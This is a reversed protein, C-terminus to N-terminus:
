LVLARIDDSLEYESLTEGTLQDIWDAMEQEWEWLVMEGFRKFAPTGALDELEEEGSVAQDLQDVRFGYPRITHRRRLAQFIVDLAAPPMIGRKGGAGKTTLKTMYKFLEIVQGPRMRQVDQAAISADPYQRLWRDRLRLAQEKGQVGVHFHPNYDDRRPNYTCELKRVARLDLKDVRRIQEICNRTLRRQMDGIHNRLRGAEVNPTTLTVFHPDSWGEIVPVYANIYKATRIRNCVLCWRNSCYHTRLRDDEQVIDTSCYITNRYSKALPSKLDALRVAVARSIFLSRARKQLAKQGDPLTRHPRNALTDLIAPVTGVKECRQNGQDVPDVGGPPSKLIWATDQM